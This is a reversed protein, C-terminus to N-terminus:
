EDHGEMVCIVHKPEFVVEDGDALDPISVPDNNLTGHYVVKEDITFRKTVQVWMRERDDFILKAYDGLAIEERVKKPPIEFTDPHARNRAEADVLAVSSRRM